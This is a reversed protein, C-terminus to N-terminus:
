KRLGEELRKKEEQKQEIERNLQGLRYSLVARIQETLTKGSLMNTSFSLGLPIVRYTEIAQYSGDHFYGFILYQEAQRPWYQSRVRAPGRVTSGKLVSIVEMDTDIVGDKREIVVGDNRVSILDPTKACCAIIIDPSGTTLNDWGTFPIITIAVATLSILLTALVIRITQTRPRM